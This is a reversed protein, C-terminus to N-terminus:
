MWCEGCGGTCRSGAIRCTTDKVSRKWRPLSLAYKSPPLNPFIHHEIQYNIWAQLFDRVIPGRKYNLTGLLQHRYFDPRGRTGVDFRYLDDGTHSSAILIFTYLNTLLEAAIVTLLVNLAAHGGLPIFLAPILVFRPRNAFHM